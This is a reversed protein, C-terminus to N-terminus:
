ELINQTFIDKSKKAELKQCFNSFSNQAFFTSLCLSLVSSCLFWLVHQSLSIM